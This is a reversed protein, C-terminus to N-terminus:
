PEARFANTAFAGAALNSGKMESVGRSSPRFLKLDSMSSAAGVIGSPTSSGVTESRLSSVRFSRSEQWDHLGVVHQSFDAIYRTPAVRGSDLPLRVQELPDHGAAAPAKALVRLLEARVEDPDARDCDPNPGFPHGAHDVCSFKYRRDALHDFGARDRDRDGQHVMSNVLSGRDDAPDHLMTGTPADSQLTYGDVWFKCLFEAECLAILDFV